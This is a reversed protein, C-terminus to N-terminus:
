SKSATLYFLILTATLKEKKIFEQPSGDIPDYLTPCSQHLKAPATRCINKLFSYYGMSNISFHFLPHDVLSPSFM